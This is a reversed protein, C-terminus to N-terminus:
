ADFIDAQAQAEHDADTGAPPSIRGSDIGSQVLMAILDAKRHNAGFNLERAECARRLVAVTKSELLAEADETSLVNSYVQPVYTDVHGELPPTAPIGTVTKWYAKFVPENNEDRNQYWTCQYFKGKHELVDNNKASRGVRNRFITCCYAGWNKIGKGSFTKDQVEGHMTGDSM